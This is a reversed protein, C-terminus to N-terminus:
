RQPAPPKEMREGQLMPSIKVGVNTGVEWNGGGDSPDGDGVHGASAEVHRPHRIEGQLGGELERQRGHPPRGHVQLGPVRTQGDPAQLGADQVQHGYHGSGAPCLTGARVQSHPCTRERLLPSACAALRERSLTQFLRRPRGAVTRLAM